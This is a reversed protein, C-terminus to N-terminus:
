RRRTSARKGKGSTGGTARPKAKGKGKATKGGSKKGYTM